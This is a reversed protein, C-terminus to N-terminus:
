HPTKENIIEIATEIISDTESFFPTSAKLDPEVGNEINVSDASLGINSSFRFTWGNPLENYIPLGGGGGTKAGILWVNPLVSMKSAFDNAASYCGHNILVMVPKDALQKEGDPSLYEPIPETFDQHGPGKKYRTYAVLTKKKLFRRIIRNGNSVSGGGNDRIDIIIGKAEEFYSIVSDINADSVDLSFSEYYIYGISDLYRNKLGGSIRYDDQLYEREIIKPNFNSPYDLKWDWYRSRNFDSKLNVHGDKLANLMGAMINFLAQETMNEHIRPRYAYYVSDWDINKYDFFSYKKDVTEWLYNFNTLPDNNLDEEILVKECGTLIIIIAILITAKRTM